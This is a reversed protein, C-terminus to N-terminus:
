RDSTLAHEESVTGSRKRDDDSGVIDPASQAVCLVVGTLPAGTARLNDAAHGLNRRRTKGLSLILLFADASESMISATITTLVPPAAVIVHAYENRLQDILGAAVTTAALDPDRGWASVSLTDPFGDAGRRIAQEPSADEPRDNSKTQNAASHNGDAADQGNDNAPRKDTTDNDGDDALDDKTSDATPESAAAAIPTDTQLVLSRNGALQLARGLNLAVVATDVEGTASAVVWVHGRDDARGSNNIVTRLRTRLRRYGNLEDATVVVASTVRGIVPVGAAVAARDATRVVPDVLSRIWVAVSGLLLATLGALVGLIVREARRERPQSATSVVTTHVKQGDEGTPTELADTYNVFENALTQALLQARAPSGDTVTVDIVATKPPVNTASVKAAFEPATISLGRKDIVRQSVVDSTLLAIYSNVRGSVVEDNQYAAATTSGSISVMLQTTSVFKAPTLIIWVLGAAFVVGAVAVFTKWYRMVAAVFSKLNL